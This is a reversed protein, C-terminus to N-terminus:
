QAHGAAPVRRHMQEGLGLSLEAVVRTDRAEHGILGTLRLAGHAGGPAAKRQAIAQALALRGARLRRAHRAECRGGTGAGPATVLEGLRRQFRQPRHREGPSAVGLAEDIQLVVDGGLIEGEGLPLAIVRHLM